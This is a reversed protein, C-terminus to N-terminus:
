RELFKNGKVLVIYCGDKYARKILVEEETEWDLVEKHTISGEWLEYAYDVDCKGRYLNEGIGSYTGMYESARCNFDCGNSNSHSWYGTNLLDQIKEEGFNYLYVREPSQVPSISFLIFIGLVILIILFNTKTM